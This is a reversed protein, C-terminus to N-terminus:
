ILFIIYILIVKEYTKYWRNYLEINKDEETDGFPASEIRIREFEKIQDLSFNQTDENYEEPNLTPLNEENM